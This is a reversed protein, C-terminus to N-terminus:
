ASRTRRSCWWATGWDLGLIDLAERQVSSRRLGRLGPAQRIIRWGAPRDGAGSRRRKFHDRDWVWGEMAVAHACLSAPAHDSLHFTLSQNFDEDGLTKLRRLLKGWNKTKM